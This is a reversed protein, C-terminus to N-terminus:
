VWASLLIVWQIRGESLGCPTTIRTQPAFGQNFDIPLRSEPSPVRDAWPQIEERHSAHSHWSLWPFSCCSSASLTCNIPADVYSGWLLWRLWYRRLKERPDTSPRSAAQGASGWNPEPNMGRSDTHRDKDRGPPRCHAWVRSTESLGAPRLGRPRLVVCDARKGADRASRWSQWEETGKKRENRVSKVRAETESELMWGRGRHGAIERARLALRMKACLQM